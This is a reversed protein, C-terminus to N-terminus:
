LQDQIVSILDKVTWKKAFEPLNELIEPLRQIEEDLPYHLDYFWAAFDLILDQPPYESEKDM